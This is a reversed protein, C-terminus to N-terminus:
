THTLYTWLYTAQLVSEKGVFSRKRLRFRQELRLSFRFRVQLRLRLRLAHRVRGVVRLRM